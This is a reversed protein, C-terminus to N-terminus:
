AATWVMPGNTIPAFSRRGNLCPTDPRDEIVASSRIAAISAFRRSCASRAPTTACLLIPEELMTLPLYDGPNPVENVHGICLWERSFIAEKEFACFKESWLSGAAPYPREVPGIAAAANAVIQRAIGTSHLGSRAHGHAKPLTLFTVSSRRRGCTARCPMAIVAHRSSAQRLRAHLRGELRPEAQDLEVQTMFEALKGWRDETMIGIGETAADGGTIVKLEKMTAVSYDM